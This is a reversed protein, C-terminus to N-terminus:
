RNVVATTGQQTTRPQPRGAECDALWKRTTDDPEKSAVDATRYVVGCDVLKQAHTIAEYFMRDGAIEAVMFHHESIGIEDFPSPSYNYLYRGGGGSVFHQINHQPKIREYLHEHGSFVVNVFNRVLAPELAPRIVERSEASHQGSSYLPHHFFCIRWKTGADAFVGDLWKIQLPDTPHNSNLAAFRANGQDFSYRDVDGMNFPKFHIELDRDHNGLTAYFKVGRDLLAKYPISFENTYDDDYLNDGLMLVFPFHKATNFYTLMAQAVAQQSQDGSGNDGMVAFITGGRISPM